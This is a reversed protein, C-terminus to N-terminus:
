SAISHNAAVKVVELSALLKRLGSRVLAQVFKESLNLLICIERITHRKKGYAGYFLELSKREMPFLLHENVKQSKSKGRNEELDIPILTYILAEKMLDYSINAEKAITKMWPTSKAGMQKKRIMVRQKAEALLRINEAMEKPVTFKARTQLIYDTIAKQVQSSLYPLFTLEGTPDYEEIAKKMAENGVLILDMIDEQGTTLKIAYYVVVKKYRALLLERDEKAKLKKYRHIINLEKKPTLVKLFVMDKLRTSYPYTIAFSNIMWALNSKIM